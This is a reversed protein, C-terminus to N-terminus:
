PKELWIPSHPRIGNLATGLPPPAPLSGLSLKYVQAGAQATPLLAKDKALLCMQLRWSHRTSSACLDWM